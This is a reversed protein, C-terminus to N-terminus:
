PLCFQFITLLCRYSLTKKLGRKDFQVNNIGSLKSPMKSLIYYQAFYIKVQFYNIM